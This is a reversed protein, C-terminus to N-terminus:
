MCNVPAPSCCGIVTVWEGSSQVIAAKQMLPTFQLPLTRSIRFLQDFLPLVVAADAFPRTVGDLAALKLTDYVRIVFSFSLSTAPCYRQDVFPRRITSVQLPSASLVSLDKDKSEACPLDSQLESGM